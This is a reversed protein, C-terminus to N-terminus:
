SISVNKSTVHIEIYTRGDNVQIESGDAYFYKTKSNRSDKKWTIPVYKGNTIYYGKGTGTNKLNWYYNDPMVNFPVKAIIINKTTITEKTKHDKNTSGNVTKTYMKSNADYKFVTTINGYPLKVTNATKADGRGDLTIEEASYNLLQSDDSTLRYGHNSTYDILKPLSTYATHERALKEPNSRWYASAWKSENGNMFDTGGKNLEDQAYHSWGFCILIADNEHAYDMFNHRCSRVTGVTVDSEDKFVALLRSTYGETPIEYVIYAKNLGEQVKVAVPTNNISIAYPRKNSTTNYIKYKSVAPPEPQPQPQPQPQPNDAPKEESNTPSVTDDGFFFKPFVLMGVVVIIALIFVYPIINIIGGSKKKQVRIDNNPNNNINNNINMNDETNM